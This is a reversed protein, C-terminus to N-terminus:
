VVVVVAIGHGLVTINLRGLEVKDAMPPSMLQFIGYQLSRSPLIMLSICLAGGKVSTPTIGM